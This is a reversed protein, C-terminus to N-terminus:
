ADLMAMFVGRTQHWEGAVGADACPAAKDGIQVVVHMVEARTRESILAQRLKAREMQTLLVSQICQRLNSTLISAFPAVQGPPTLRLQELHFQFSYQLFEIITRLLRQEVGLADGGAAGNGGGTGGGAGAGEAPPSLLTKALIVPLLAWRHPPLLLKFSRTMLKRGITTQLIAGVQAGDLTFEEDMGMGAGAGMGMGAGGMGMGAGGVGMGNTTRIGISQSLLAIASDIERAIEQYATPNSAVLPSSLLHQLEQVTYLAEYGRQVASRMTWLRSSFPAKEEGVGVGEVAGETGEEIEPEEDRPMALQERPRWIDTRVQHGLVRERSEWQRSRDHFSKRTVDMQLRLREKTEKWVPLPVYISSPMPSQQALAAERAISNKKISLQLFYFDEAFPDTSEMPQLVKNVIYRVDSPSMYKGKPLDKRPPKAGQSQTSSFGREHGMNPHPPM